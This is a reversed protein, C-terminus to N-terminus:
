AAALSAAATVAFMRAIQAPTIGGFLTALAFIPIASVLLLVVRVLSAALKGLVLERDTLQSVLLLELTRRDKESSVAIAGTLAAALMALTLQLPALIRMLTAGFRATDGATTVSQTGTVVLWCTAIIALLTGCYVARAVFLGRSRPAFAIEREFVAGLLM